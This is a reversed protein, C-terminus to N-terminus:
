RPSDDEQVPEGAVADGLVVSLRIPLIRNSWDEESRAAVRVYNGTYGFWYGDRHEEFLVPVVRGVHAEYFLRRKREAVRRASAARRNITRADLKGPLRASATGPRESYKFVHAYDVPGERLFDLTEAFDDDTEGPFGAMVDTGICIGPVRARALEVFQAFEERTYRRKMLDLIRNSASQLPIHLYPVLRHAPSAMRDLLEAPITTPELSGFRIRALGEIDNLADVVEVISRDVGTYADTYVGINVGTLVIERMGGAVLARAEELINEFHRSRARGRAFAIICFSCMFDCGDQIKLNARHVAAAGRVAPAVFGRERVREKRVEPVPRKAHDIYDLVRLKEDSGVILDIGEIKALERHGTQSYCGIVATFASPNRRIFARILKRSKADAEGTVTCTNIIGLDAEEGFPVIEYGRERLQDELLATEAHNLRCGLTHLSARRTGHSVTDRAAM